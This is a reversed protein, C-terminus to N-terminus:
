KFFTIWFVASVVLSKIPLLIELLIILTELPEGCFLECVNVFSCSLSIGLSLYIDGSSLCFIISSRFNIYYHLLPIYFFFASAVLLKIPLLIASLIVFSFVFKCCLLESLIVFSCSLSIGISLYTDGSSLCFIISSKYNIYYYFLPIDFLKKLYYVLDVM